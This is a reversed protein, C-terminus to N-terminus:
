EVDKVDVSRIVSQCQFSLEVRTGESRESEVRLEGELARAREHMIELGLQEGEHKSRHGVLGQGDDEILVTYHNGVARLLVRATRANAHKRVNTLAEQVIRLVQRQVEDPLLVQGCEKQFIGNIGSDQNFRDVVQQISSVLENGDMPARFHALLTRLETHAQEVGDGIQNLQRDVLVPLTGGVTEQLAQVQFRLSALTQALSDHLEHALSARTNRITHQQLEEVQRANAVAVGLQHGIRRLLDLVDERKAMGEDDLFLNFVGLTAGQYYLPLVIMQSSSADLVADGTLLSCSEPDSKCLLEGRSLAQNCFCNEVPLTIRTAVDDEDFGLSAVLCMEGKSNLTRVTASRAGVMEKLVRLSHNLLSDLDPCRNIGDVVDYLIELAAARQALRASNKVETKSPM